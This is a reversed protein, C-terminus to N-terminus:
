ADPHAANDTLETLAGTLLWRGADLLTQKAEPVDLGVVDILAIMAETGVILGLAHAIRDLDKDAITGSLPALANRIHENRRGQRIPVRDDDTAEARRFWQDLASKVSQRYPVQDDLMQFGLTRLLAELRAHPDNGAADVLEYSHALAPLYETATTAAEWWLDDASPFYRYATAVSVLARNAAEPISAPRGERVLEIAAHLLASRTRARQNSLGSKELSAEQRSLDM